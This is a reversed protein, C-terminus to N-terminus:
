RDMEANLAVAEAESDKVAAAVPDSNPVAFALIKGNYGFSFLDVASAASPSFPPDL